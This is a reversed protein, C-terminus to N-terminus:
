VAFPDIIQHIRNLEEAEFHTNELCHLNESLQQVSSSGILVTSVRADHLLWALAMQSLKQGRQAAHQSLQQLAHLKEKSLDTQKLFPSKNMRADAPIGDLYRDTLLGQALPSFACFGVGNEAATDLVGQEVKRSLLSYRDQQIVCPCGNSRLFAYAETAQKPPYKSLGIYLAKGSRVIDVLAQLTEELPTETDYRHSYFIDVYDLQLRKLSQNLSAMLNKRSSGDGYPGEWMAHGAKTAILLEDRHKSLDQKLFAGFFTEASGPPPGYNNALDFYTVGRDFAHLLIERAKIPNDAEGFNHWLGMSIRPIKLGSDGSAIYPMHEYRDSAPKHTM